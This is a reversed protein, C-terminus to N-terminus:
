TVFLDERPREIKLAMLPSTESEIVGQQWNLFSRLATKQTSRWLNYPATTKRLHDVWQYQFLEGLVFEVAAMPTMPLSPFRPVSLGNPFPPSPQKGDALVHAHFIAGPSDSGGIEMRWRALDPASEEDDANRLRIVTSAKGELRFHKSDVHAIEWVASVEAYVGEYHGKGSVEYAGKSRKTILPSAPAWGWQYDVITSKQVYVLQSALEEVKSDEGRRLFSKAVAQFSRVQRQIEGYSFLLM